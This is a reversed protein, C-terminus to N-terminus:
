RKVYKQKFKAMNDKDLKDFKMVETDSDSLEMIMNNYVEDITDESGSELSEETDATEEKEKGQRRSEVAKIVKYKCELAKFNINDETNCQKIPSESDYQNTKDKNSETKTAKNKKICIPKLDETEKSQTENSKNEGNSELESLHIENEDVPILPEYYNM